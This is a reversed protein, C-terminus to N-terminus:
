QNGIVTAVQSPPIMNLERREPIQRKRANTPNITSAHAVKMAHGMKLSSKVSDSSLSSYVDSKRGERTISM